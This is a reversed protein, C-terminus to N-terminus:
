RTLVATLTDFLLFGAAVDVAICDTHGTKIPKQPNKNKSNSYFNSRKKM